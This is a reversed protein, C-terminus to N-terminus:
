GDFCDGSCLLFHRIFGCTVEPTKTLYQVTATITSPLPILKDPHVCFSLLMHDPSLPHQRLRLCNSLVSLMVIGAGSLPRGEFCRESNLILLYFILFFFGTNLTNKKPLNNQNASIYIYICVYTYTYIYM